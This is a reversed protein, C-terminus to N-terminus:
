FDVNRDSLTEGVENMKWELSLFHRCTFPQALGMSHM